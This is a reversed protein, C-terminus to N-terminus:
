AADAILRARQFRHMATAVLLSDVLLLVPAVPLAADLLIAQSVAHLLVGRPSASLARLALAPLLAPALVILSVLQQAQRVTASGLSLLM